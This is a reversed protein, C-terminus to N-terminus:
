LSRLWRSRLKSEDSIHHFERAQTKKGQPTSWEPGELVPDKEEVRDLPRKSKDYGMELDVDTADDSSRDNGGVKKTHQSKPAISAASDVDTVTGGCAATKSLNWVQRPPTKPHAEITVPQIRKPMPPRTGLATKMKRPKKKM